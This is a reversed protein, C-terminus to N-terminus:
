ASAERQASVSVIREPHLILNFLAHNHTPCLWRRPREDSVVYRPEPGLWDIYCWGGSPSGYADGTSWEEGCEHWDCRITRTITESM